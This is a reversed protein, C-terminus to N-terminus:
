IIYFPRLKGKKLELVRKIKEKEYEKWLKEDRKKLEPLLEYIEKLDM